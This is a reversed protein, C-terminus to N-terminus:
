GIRIPDARSEPSRNITGRIAAQPSSGAPEGGALPEGTSDRAPGDAAAGSSGTLGDSLAVGSGGAHGCGPEKTFDVPV